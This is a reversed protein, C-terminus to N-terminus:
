ARAKRERVERVEPVELAITAIVKGHQKVLMATESDFSTDQHPFWIKAADQMAKKGEIKKNGSVTDICVPKSGNGYVWVDWTAM